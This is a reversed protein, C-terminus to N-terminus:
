LTHGDRGLHYDNGWQLVCNGANKWDEIDKRFIQADEEPFADPRDLFDELGLPFQKLGINWREVFFQEVRIPGKHLHLQKRIVRIQKDAIAEAIPGLGKKLDINLPYERTELINGMNDFTVVAVFSGLWGLLVQKEDNTKGTFYTHPRTQIAHM